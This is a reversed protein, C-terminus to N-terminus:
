NIDLIFYGFKNKKNLSPKKRLWLHGNVVLASSPLFKKMNFIHDGIQKLDSNYIEVRFHTRGIKLDDAPLLVIRFLIDNKKDYLLDYIYVSEKRWRELGNKMPPAALGFSDQFPAFELNTPNSNLIEGSPVDVNYIDTEVKNCCFLSKGDTTCTQRYNGSIRRKEYFINPNPLISNVVEWKDQKKQVVVANYDKKAVGEFLSGISSTRIIYFPAIEIIGFTLDPMLIDTTNLKLTDLHILNGSPDLEILVNDQYKICLWSGDKQRHIADLVVPLKKENIKNCSYNDNFLPILKQLSISKPAVLTDSLSYIEISVNRSNFTALYEIGEDTFITNAELSNSTPTSKTIDFEGTISFNVDQHIESCSYSILIVSMFMLITASHNKKRTSNFDFM